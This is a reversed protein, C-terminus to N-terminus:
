QRPRIVVLIPMMNLGKLRTRQWHVKQLWVHRIRESGYARRAPPWSTTDQAKFLKEVDFLSLWKDPFAMIAVFPHDDRTSIHANMSFCHFNIGIRRLRVLFRSGFVSTIRKQGNNWSELMGDNWTPPVFGTDNFAAHNWYIISIGLRKKLRLQPMFICWFICWSKCVASAATAM